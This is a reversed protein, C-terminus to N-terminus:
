ALARRGLLDDLAMLRPVLANTPADARYSTVMNRSVGRSPRASAAMVARPRVDVSSSAQPPLLSLMGVGVEAAPAGVAV